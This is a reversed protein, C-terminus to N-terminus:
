VQRGIARRKFAADLHAAGSRSQGKSAGTSWPARWRGRRVDAAVAPAVIWRVDVGSARRVHQPGVDPSIAHPELNGLHRSRRVRSDELGACGRVAETGREARRPDRAASYQSVVSFCRVSTEDCVSSCDAPQWWGRISASRRDTHPRSHPRPSGGPAGSWVIGTTTGNGADRSGWAGGRRRCAPRAPPASLRHTRSCCERRATRRPPPTLNDVVVQDAPEHGRRRPSDPWPRSSSAISAASVVASTQSRLSPASTFPEPAGGAVVV